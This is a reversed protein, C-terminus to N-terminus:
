KKLKEENLASKKPSNQDESKNQLKDAIDKRIESIIKEM